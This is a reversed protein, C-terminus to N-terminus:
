LYIFSYGKKSKNKTKLLRSVSPQSYGTAKAAMFISDFTATLVGKYYVAVPKRHKKESKGEIVGLDYICYLFTRLYKNQQETLQLVWELEKMAKTVVTNASNM